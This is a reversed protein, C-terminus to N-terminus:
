LAQALVSFVRRRRGPRHRDVEVNSFGAARCRDAFLHAQEPTWGHSAHGSAGPEVRREIALFRGSPRLIRRAEALGTDLDHWHHVTALSWAVSASGDPLPLAEAAGELYRPTPRDRRSARILARAVRLMVAAPDVGVVSSAGRAAARGVAVGPGCGIDVVDDDPGVGTLEIALDADGRRGITFCLAAVVGGLGAFGPHDAHHNPPLTADGTSTSTM